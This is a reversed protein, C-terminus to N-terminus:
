NRAIISPASEIRPSTLPAEFGRRSRSIRRQIMLIRQQCTEINKLRGSV